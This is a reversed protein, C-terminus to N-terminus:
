TNALRELIPTSAILMAQDGPDLSDFQTVFWAAGAIEAGAQTLEILVRRKDSMVPRRTILGAETLGALIRHM